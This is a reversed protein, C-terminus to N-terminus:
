PEEDEPEPPGPLGVPLDYGAVEELSVRRCLHHFIAVGAVDSRHFPCALENLRAGFAAALDGSGVLYADPGAQRVLASQGPHVWSVIPGLEGSLVLRGEALFTYKPAVWFGAYGTRVQLRDLEALLARDRAEAEGRGQLWPVLGVLNAGLVTAAAAAAAVRSRQGLSAIGWGFAVAVSTYVPMLYRPRQAGRHSFKSAAFVSVVVVFLVFAALAPSRGRRERIDARSAVAMVLVLAPLVAGLVLALDPGAGLDTLGFMKPFSVALTRELRDPLGAIRDAPQKGGRRFLDFTAWGNAANWVWLPYSGCLFGGAMDMIGRPRRLAPTALVLVAAAAVFYVALLQQWVALGLLFGAALLAGRTTLAVLALAGLANVEPYQGVNNLSFAVLFRPSIAMFLGAGIAGPLGAAHRALIMVAVTWLLHFLYSTWAYTAPIGASLLWSLLATLHPKLTGEYPFGPAYIPAPRQGAALEQAIIGAVASDSSILSAPAALAPLRVLTALLAVVAVALLFRRDDAAEAPRPRRAIEWAMFGLLGAALPVAALPGTWRGVIPGGFWADVTLVWLGPVAYRWPAGIARSPVLVRGARHRAM